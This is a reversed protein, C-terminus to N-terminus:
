RGTCIAKNIQGAFYGAGFGNDINVVTVGPSCANLMTLLPALGEFSAGYGVSTPVAVVPTEVLGSVVTPLAGDMGAAIVVVKAQAIKKRNSLLRQLGAVGIDFLREVENGMCEATVAAEEAVPIDATGASCVLVGRFKKEPFDGFTLTGALKNYKVSPFESRVFNATETEARTALVPGSEALKKFIEAVQQPTKNQCFIVEPFGKRLQRHHDVKAFELEQFPLSELDSLAMEITKNGNKVETLLKLIQERNM